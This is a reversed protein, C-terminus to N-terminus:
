SNQVGSAPWPADTRRQEATTVLDNADIDVRLENGSGPLVVWTGVPDDGVEGREVERRDSLGLREIGGNDGAIHQREDGGLGFSLDESPKLRVEHGIAEGDGTELGISVVDGIEILMEDIGPEGEFM